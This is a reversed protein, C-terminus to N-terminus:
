VEPHKLSIQDILEGIIEINHLITLPENEVISKFLDPHSSMSKNILEPSASLTSYLISCDQSLIERLNRTDKKLM